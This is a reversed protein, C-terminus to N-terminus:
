YEIRAFKRTIYRVPYWAAFTGIVMVTIFVYIFDASKMTVPYNEIIFSGGSGLKVLGFQIQAWCVAVGIILGLLAGSASIFLGELFFINRITKNNAGLSKLIQIDNKKEIILMTLSGIVNFSAILLIFVLIMFIAWKESQMIKYAYEHQRNRDQIEYKDGLSLALSEVADKVDTGSTLKLEASSIDKEYELLTRVEAIPLILYKTDYEQQIAFIGAAYVTSKNINDTADQFNGKFEKTRGPIFVSIPYAFDVTLGLSYAIGQGAIGCPIDRNYLMFDGEIIMSDLGTVEQYKEDVGKITAIIQKEGYQLMANEELCFSYEEIFDASNLTKQFKSDPIFTKGSKAVIKIDPDFSNYLKQLLDDFGNFVSLIIILAATGTAVGLISVFSIVNIANRSKKSILYRRAIYFPFNL